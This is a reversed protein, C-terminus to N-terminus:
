GGEGWNLCPSAISEADLASHCIQSPNFEIASGEVEGGNKGNCSRPSREPHRLNGDGFGEAKLSGGLPFQSYQIDFLSYRIFFNLNGRRGEAGM